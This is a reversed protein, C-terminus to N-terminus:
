AGSSARGSAWRSTTKSTPSPSPRRPPAWGPSATTASSSCASPSTARAPSRSTGPSISTTAISGAAALTTFLSEMHPLRAELAPDGTPTNERYALFEAGPAIVAGGGDKMNRLAVIYREGEDFNV